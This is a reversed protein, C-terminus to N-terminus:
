STIHNAFSYADFKERLYFLNDYNRKKATKDQLYKMSFSFRGSGHKIMGSGLHRLSGPSFLVLWSNQAM